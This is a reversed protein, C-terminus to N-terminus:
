VLPDGPNGPRNLGKVYRSRFDDDESLISPAHFSSM